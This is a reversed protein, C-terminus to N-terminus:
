FIEFTKNYTELAELGQHVEDYYLFSYEYVVIQFLTIIAAYIEAHFGLTKNLPFLISYRSFEYSPCKPSDTLLCLKAGKKTLFGNLRDQTKPYRPLSVCIVYTDEAAENVIKLLNPHRESITEINLGLRVLHYGFYEMIGAASEYGVLYTKKHQHLDELIKNFVDQSILDPLRQIMGINNNMTNRFVNSHNYNVMYNTLKDVTTIEHKIYDQLHNIMETFGEYGLANAFRVVTAESTGVEKAIPVCSLFVATRYNVRLYDALKKQSRSLTDYKEELRQFFSKQSM